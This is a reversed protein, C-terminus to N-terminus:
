PLTGKRPTAAREAEADRAKNIMQDVFGRFEARLQPSAHDWARQGDSALRLLEGAMADIGASTLEHQM